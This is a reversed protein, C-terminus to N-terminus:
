LCNERAEQIQYKKLKKRDRYKQRLEALQKERKKKTEMYQLFTMGIFSLFIMATGLYYTWGFSVHDILSTALMGLPITLSIGLQTFLPGLIVVSKAWCFDSICSGLFANLSLFMLTKGNPWRFVEIGTFHFIPFLPLLVVINILGVYGLFVSMDFNKEAEEPVKYKLFTAYCGYLLASILTFADGLIRNKAQGDDDSEFVTIVTAGSFSVLVGVLKLFVSTESKLFLWSLLFVFLMSTNSLITSSSLLTFKLGANYFYNAGFWIMCFMLSTMFMEKNNFKVQPAQEELKSDDIDSTSENSSEVCSQDGESSDINGSALEATESDDETPPWYKEKVM